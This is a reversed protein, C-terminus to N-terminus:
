KSVPTLRYGKAQMCDNALRAEDLYSDRRATSAISDDSQAVGGGERYPRSTTPWPNSASAYQSSQNRATRSCEAQDEELNAVGKEPHMWQTQTCGAFALPALALMLFHSRKM